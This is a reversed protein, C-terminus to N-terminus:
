GGVRSLSGNLSVSCDMEGGPGKYTTTGNGSATVSDGSLELTWVSWEWTVDVLSGDGAQVQQECTQGSVITARDGNVDFEYNCDDGSLVIDASSSEVITFNGTQSATYSNSPCNEDINSGSNWSWLGTFDDVSSQDEEAEFGCGGAVLVGVMLLIVNELRGM